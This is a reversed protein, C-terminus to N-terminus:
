HTESWNSGAHYDGALPCNLEYHEGALTIARCGLRGVAKAFAIPTEVQWEDHVNAVIRYPLGRQELLEVFIVLAKKMVIAGASQLLSNPAIYDEEVRVKRGDLALVTGKAAAAKVEKIFKALAPTNTLFKKKLNAGTKSGRGVISGIKENGAGYLFAYIFTKAMDRTPLGAALQNATHIDGELIEKVYEPDNMYHALMRLELGSADIGVLVNGEDVTWCERCEKGYPATVAPVQAINPSNHTMRGTVAGNTYVKGHVRGDKIHSLWQDIQGTRKQCLFYDLLLKSEKTHIAGLVTEDIKYSYKIAALKKPNGHAETIAEKTKPTYETLKVGTSLLRAAIQPRSGPNFVQVNDKLTKGTKESVRKTTIPPFIAQLKDQATIMRAWLTQYLETAKEIDLKFGNRCMQATIWQVEHELEICDVSFKSKDVMIEMLHQYLKLTLATDQVCYRGMEETYGKDFDEVDFDIKADELRAGWAKLSHGGAIRPNWLRSMIITDRVKHKPVRINWLKELIPIDFEILNHGIVIDALDIMGQLVSRSIDTDELVVSDDDTVVACCWIVDHALNTEIDLALIM